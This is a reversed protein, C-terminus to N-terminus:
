LCKPALQLLIGILSKWLNVFTHMNLCLTSWRMCYFDHVVWFLYLGSLSEGHIIWQTVLIENKHLGTDYADM